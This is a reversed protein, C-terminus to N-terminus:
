ALCHSPPSGILPNQTFEEGIPKPDRATFVEIACLPTDEAPKLVITCGAALAPAVKRTVMSIPYNWPTVAAVVGIPQQMVLFRQDARASPITRGYVRKAEEAFWILFDAACKVETRAAKIPKGQERTLIQALVEQRDLLLRWAKCLIEAREYATRASWVPFTGASSAIAAKADAAGGASVRAILAGSAPDLVDFVEGSAAPQWAGDIHISAISADPPPM